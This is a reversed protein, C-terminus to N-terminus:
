AGENNFLSQANEKHSYWVDTKIKRGLAIKWSCLIHKTASNNMVEIQHHRSSRRVM